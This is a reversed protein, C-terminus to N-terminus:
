VIKFVHVLVLVWDEGADLAYDQHIKNETHTM